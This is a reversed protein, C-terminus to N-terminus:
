YAVFLYESVANMNDGIKHGQNGFSYRYDIPIAEVHKMHTRLLEVMEDLTPLCNSSYSVILINDRFRNFITELARYTGNKTAFPTDYSAFKKTKTHDEIDVGVWDRAIGEVFHYRRVYHNDSHSSFYPPDIYILAGEPARLALADGSTARNRRHNNFVAGNVSEVAMLFHERLSMQLDRRGDDYRDGVYTFIGRPRKKMCARILSSLAIARDQPDTLAGINWRLRDILKNEPRSFYLGDFTNQVFKDSGCDDDVLHLAIEYGLTKRNNEVMAKAFTSSMYMHDNSVVRAGRAKFMYSVVGSGSFLDYVTEFEFESSATWIEGLLKQKSGMFRTPPFLAIQRSAEDPIQLTM